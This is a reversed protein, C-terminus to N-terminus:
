LKGKKNIDRVVRKYVKNSYSNVRNMQSRDSDPFREEQLLLRYVRAVMIKGRHTLEYVARRHKFNKGWQKIWGKKILDSFRTKDWSMISSYWTFDDKTFRGESYLFILLELDAVGIEYEKTIIYKVVRWHKMFDHKM